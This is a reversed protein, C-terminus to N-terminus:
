RAQGKADHRRGGRDAHFSEFVPLHETESGGRPPFFHDPFWLSDWRGVEVAKISRRIDDWTTRNCIVDAGFKM